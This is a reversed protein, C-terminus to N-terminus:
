DWQRVCSSLNKGLELTSYSDIRAAMEPWSVERLQCGECLTSEALGKVPLWLTWVGNVHCASLFGAWGHFVDQGVARGSVCVSPRGVWPLCGTGCGPWVCLCFAPGGMSSMRDWLGALCVSLLGAWGHFVDQGVARGSVCVSPRGVWPLCGTGCGPWVCLCFSPGGM